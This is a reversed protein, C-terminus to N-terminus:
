FRTYGVPTPRPHTLNYTRVCGEYITLTHAAYRISGIGSWYHMGYHQFLEEGKAIDKTAYFLRDGGSEVNMKSLSKTAYEIIGMASYYNANYDPNFGKFNRGGFINCLAREEEYFQYLDVSTPMFADNILQAIGTKTKPTTYGVYRSSGFNQLYIAEDHTVDYDKDVLYGDYYCVLEGATYSRTTFVGRGANVITSEKVEFM